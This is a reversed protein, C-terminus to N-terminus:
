LLGKEDYYSEAEQLAIEGAVAMHLAIVDELHESCAHFIVSVSADAGKAHEANQIQDSTMHTVSFLVEFGQETCDVGACTNPCGKGCLDPNNFAIGIWHFNQTNARDGLLNIPGETTM